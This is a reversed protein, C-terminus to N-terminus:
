QKCRRLLHKEGCRYCLSYIGRYEKMLTTVDADSLKVQCYSGGRVHNLGYKFMLSKTTNDETFIDRNEIIDVVEVPKYKRTWASGRDKFHDQLRRPLNGSAGVYFKNNHLRLIYIVSDYIM